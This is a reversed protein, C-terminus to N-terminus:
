KIWDPQSGIAKISQHAKIEVVPRDYIDKGEDDVGIKRPYSTTGAPVEKLQLVVNSQERGGLPLKRNTQVYTNVFEKSISIFNAAEKKNFDYDEALAKAEQQPIKAAGSMVSAVLERADNAPCVTGVQGDKSYVGVEYERDNLMAKMVRLEDKQSASRQSLGSKIEEIINKVNEM